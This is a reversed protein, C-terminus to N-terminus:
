DGSIAVDVTFTTNTTNTLVIAKDSTRGMPLTGEILTAVATLQRVPWWGSYPRDLTHDLTKSENGKFTLGRLICPAAHPNSWVGADAQDVDEQMDNLMRVLRDPNKVDDTSFRRAAPKNIARSTITAATGTAANVPPFTIITTSRSRRGSAM